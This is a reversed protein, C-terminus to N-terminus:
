LELIEETYDGSECCRGCNCEESLGRVETGSELVGVIAKGEAMIGYVKSPCSVGKIGEANACWHVAGTNLSYIIDTKDQYPIFEINELQHKKSYLM